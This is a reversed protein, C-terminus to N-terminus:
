KYIHNQLNKNLKNLNYVVAGTLAAGFGVIKQFKESQYVRVRANTVLRTVFNNPTNASKIEESKGFATKTIEHRM